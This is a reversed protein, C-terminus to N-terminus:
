KSIGREFTSKKKFKSLIEELSIEGVLYKFLAGDLTKVRVFQQINAILLEEGQKSFPEDKYRDILEQTKEPYERKAEVLFQILEGNRINMRRILQHLNEHVVYTAVIRQENEADNSIDIVVVNTGNLNLASWEEEKLGQVFEDETYKSGIKSYKKIKRYLDRLHSDNQKDCVYLENNFGLVNIVHDAYRQVVERKRVRFPHKYDITAPDLSDYEEQLAKFEDAYDTLLDTPLSFRVGEMASAKQMAEARSAKSGKEYEFIEVNADKLRGYIDMPMDNPVVAATFDSLQLPREFKTEFYRAPYETRIANVMDNFKAMDEESLEIGYEKKIFEKPNNKGVAEILRWYGYDDFGKADPQLKNGLEHYVELWKDKFAEFEENSKGLLAKRKRISELTTMKPIANAIFVGFSPFTAVAGERGQKKMWKSANEVTHPM